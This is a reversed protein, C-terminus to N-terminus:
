NRRGRRRGWRYYSNGIGGGVNKNGEKRIRVTERAERDRKRKRERLFSVWCKACCTAVYDTALHIDQRARYAEITRM